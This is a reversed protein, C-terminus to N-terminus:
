AGIYLRPIRKTLICPIEYPITGLKEAWEDILITTGQQSGLLQVKEGVPFKRPLRIMCQDMCIRGVIPMRQGDVLVEQGQLGRILGDAYGIPLTAIWEDEECTYTAGYSLTEGKQVKKVHIIETELSMAQKLELPMERKVYASPAIGYVSIGVRVADFALEPHMIAAASNSVHFVLKGGNWKKKIANIREVQKLFLPNDGEDATAFHTYLGEVQFPHQGVFEFAEEAEEPQIGIRRMGTDFKLHIPLPSDVGVRELKKAAEQLWELSYATLNINRSIAEQIFNVPSAGLVLVEAKVENKRLHLAEDPTAVALISAGSKLAQRAVELVGHGYADAKVVAMLRASGAREKLARVNHDIATLDIIAKTPRYNTEMM